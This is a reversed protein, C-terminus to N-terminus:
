LRQPRAPHCKRAGQTSTRKKNLAHPGTLNPM